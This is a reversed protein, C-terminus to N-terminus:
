INFLDLTYALDFFTTAILFTIVRMKLVNQHSIMTKIFYTLLIASLIYNYFIPVLGLITYKPAVHVQNYIILEQFFMSRYEPIMFFASFSSPIIFLSNQVWRPVKFEFFKFIYLLYVSPLMFSCAQKLLFGFIIDESFVQTLQYVYASSWVASVLLLIGGVKSGPMKRRIIVFLSTVFSVVIFVSLIGQYLGAM